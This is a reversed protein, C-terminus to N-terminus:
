RRQTTFRVPLALSGAYRAAEEVGALTRAWVLVEPVPRVRWRTAGPVLWGLPAARDLPLVTSGGRHEIRVGGGTVVVEAIAELAPAGSPCARVGSEDLEVRMWDDGALVEPAAGPSWAAALGVRRTGETADVVGVGLTGRARVAEIVTALAAVLPALGNPEVVWEFGAEGLQELQRAAGSGDFEAAIAALRAISALPDLVFVREWTARWAAYQQVLGPEGFAIADASMAWDVAEAAGDAIVVADVFPVLAAPPRLPPHDHRVVAVVSPSPLQHM